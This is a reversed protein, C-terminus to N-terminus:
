LEVIMVKTATNVIKTDGIYETMGGGEHVHGCVVLKPKTEEIYQRLGPSGIDVTEGKWNCESLTLGAPPCHSLIIDAPSRLTFYGLDFDRYPTMREYELALQPAGFCPSLNFGQITFSNFDSEKTTHTVLRNEDTINEAYAYADIMTHNYTNQSHKDHNGTIYYTRLPTEMGIREFFFMTDLMEQTTGTNTLDGAILVYKVDLNEKYLEKIKDLTEDFHCHIDSAIIFKM